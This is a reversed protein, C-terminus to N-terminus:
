IMLFSRIYAFRSKPLLAKYIISLGSETLSVKKIQIM